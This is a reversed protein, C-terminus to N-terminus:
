WSVWMQQLYCCLHKVLRCFIHKLWLQQFCVAGMQKDCFLMRWMCNLFCEVCSRWMWPLGSRCGVPSCDRKVINSWQFCVMDPFTSWRYDGRDFSGAVLLLKVSMIWCKRVVTHLDFVHLEGSGTCIRRTSVCRWQKEGVHREESLCLVFTEPCAVIVTTWKKCCEACTARSAATIVISFNTLLNVWTQLNHQM